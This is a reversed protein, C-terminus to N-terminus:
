TKSFQRLDKRRPIPSPGSLRASRKIRKRWSKEDNAKKHKALASKSLTPNSQIAHIAEVYSKVFRRTIDRNRGIFKQTTVLGTGQYAINFDSMDFM